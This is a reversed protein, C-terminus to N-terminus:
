KRVKGAISKGVIYGATFAASITAVPHSKIQARIKDAGSHVQGALTERADGIDALATEFISQLRSVHDSKDTAAHDSAIDAKMKAVIADFTTRDPDDPRSQDPM